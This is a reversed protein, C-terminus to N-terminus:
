DMMDDGKCSTFTLLLYCISSYSQNKIMENQSSKCEISNLHNAIWQSVLNICNKQRLESASTM